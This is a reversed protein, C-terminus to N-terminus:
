RPATAAIGVEAFLQQARAGCQAPGLGGLQTTTNALLEAGAAYARALEPRCDLESGIAVARELLRLARRQQGCVWRVEAALRHIEVRQVAVKKAIALAQRASTRAQRRLKSSRPDSRLRVLDFRLRAAVHASTHWPPHLPESASAAKQLAQEADDICGALLLAKALTGFALVKLPGTNGWEVYREAAAIGAALDRQEILLIARMGDHNSGAFEYRYDDRLEQLQLLQREAAAFQGQRLLMDCYLGIYNNADYFQGTRLADAVLQSSLPQAKRWAGTLYAAIFAMSRYPLEDRVNGPRVMKEAVDLIRKGIRFSLASYYFMGAGSAFITCAQEFHKLELENFRRLASISDLFLRTPDSTIEARARNFLIDSWELERELDEPPRRRGGSLYLQGLLAAFDGAVRLYSRMSNDSPPDGLLVSAADFHPMSDPIHGTNLLALGLHKEILARHRTDGGGDGHLRNYLALADQFLTLAESSAAAAAAVVGAKVLYSEAPAWQEAQRYHHAIPAFYKSLDESFSQEFAIAVQQHLEKRSRLLLSEYVAEQALAHRFLYEVEVTVARTGAPVSWDDRKQDILERDLLVSVDSDLHSGRPVVRALVRRPFQRGIVSAIRLVQRAPEDLHDVRSMIVEHITGPLEVTDIRPTLQFVGESFEIAGHDVLARVVEEIYFPNGGTRGTVVARLKSPIEKLRLLNAVVADADTAVLPGLAIEHYREGLELRLRALTAECSEGSLPRTAIVFLLPVERVLSALEELLRLSSRDAWQLDEFVLTRPGQRGIAALLDHMHKTILRELGEGDISAIRESMEPSLPLGMLRGIFPLAEDIDTGLVGQMALRLQVLTEPGPTEEGVGCWHRLLDIFPYFSMTRGITLSRAQLVQGSDRQPALAESLLRSKGIGAEAIITLMAGEGRAMTAAAARILMFEADRGVLPSFLRRDAATTQRHVKVSESIVRYAPVPQAKGKLILPETPTLEFEDRVYRYTDPGIFIDGGHAAEKLRAALNVTDGMVTFDRKVLGGIEGAICLGTNIGIHLALPTRLNREREFTALAHRLDIACNIAQQPAREIANPVGFLAMVGEGLYKDIVGGFSSVSRAMRKLLEGLLEAVEAENLATLLADVGVLEAFLVSAQRRESDRVARDGSRKGVLEYVPIPEPYPRLMVPDRPKFEFAHETATYTGPGVFIDGRDSVDELRSALRVTDGFVSFDSKNEDGVIMGTVPGTSLGIHIDLPLPLGADQNYQYLAARLELAAEVAHLTPTQIDPSFGFVAKVCDGLYEDVIGGHAFVVSELRQFAGNMVTTVEEPDLKESLATFGSIDAFMVTAIRREEAGASADPVDAEPRPSTM